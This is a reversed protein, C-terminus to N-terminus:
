FVVMVVFILFSLLSALSFTIFAVHDVMYSIDKWTLTDDYNEVSEEDKLKFDRVRNKREKKSIGVKSRSVGGDKRRCSKCFLFRYLAQWRKTVPISEDKHYLRLNLITVLTICVSIVMDSMLKYTIVPIPDSSAPLSDSIITLFVAIALLVTVSYSVREGSDPVLLFVLVNLFSMLLLPAVLNVITFSAKRSLHIATEYYSWQDLMYTLTETKKLKWISNESYQGLDFGMNGAFLKVETTEYGWATFRVRCTQEDFPYKQVNVSCSALVRGGVVINAVGADDYKVRNWKKAMTDSDDTTTTIILEPVWVSSYSIRATYLDGYLAPDWMMNVDHWLLAFAGTFSLEGTIENLDQISRLYAYISVTVADSQNLIPRVDKNYGTLLHNHLQEAFTINTCSVSTPRDIVISTIFTLYLLIKDRSLNM